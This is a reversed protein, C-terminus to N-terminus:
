KPSWQGRRGARSSYRVQRWSQCGKPSSQAYFLTAVDIRQSVMTALLMNVSDVLVAQSVVQYRRSVAVSEEIDVVCRACDDPPKAPLVRAERHSRIRVERPLVIISPSPIFLYRLDDRWTEQLSSVSFRLRLRNSLAALSQCRSASYARPMISSTSVSAIVTSSSFSHSGQFLVTEADCPFRWIISLPLAMM